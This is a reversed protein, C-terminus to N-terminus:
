RGLWTKVRGLLGGAVPDECYAMALSINDADDGASASALAVLEAATESDIGASLGSPVDKSELYKWFGDSCLLFLDGGCVDSSEFDPELSNRGGLCMYLQHGIVEPAGSDPKAHRLLESATHDRTRHLLVGDRWHYVRSDGVHSWYAEGPRLYLLACTSGPSRGQGDALGQIRAHAQACLRELFGPPDDGSDELFSSEACDLVTQAALAGDRHGGMGDAVLLLHSVGDPSHLIAVRDQQVKRGGIAAASSFHWAM